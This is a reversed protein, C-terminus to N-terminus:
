HRSQEGIEGKVQVEHRDPKTRLPVFHTELLVTDKPKENNGLKAPHDVAVVKLALRVIKKALQLQNLNESALSKPPINIRLGHSKVISM